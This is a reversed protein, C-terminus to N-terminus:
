SVTAMAKPALKTWFPPPFHFLVLHTRTNGNTDNGNNDDNRSRCDPLERSAFPRRIHSGIFGFLV